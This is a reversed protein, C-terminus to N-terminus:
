IMPLNGLLKNPSQLGVWNKDYIKKIGQCISYIISSIGDQINAYVLFLM